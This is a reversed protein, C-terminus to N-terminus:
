LNCGSIDGKGCYRILAKRAEEYSMTTRKDRTATWKNYSGRAHHYLPELIKGLYESEPFPDPVSEYM